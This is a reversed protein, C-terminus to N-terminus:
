RLHERANKLKRKEERTLSDMGHKSIKDLIPDIERRMYEDANRERETERRQQAERWSRRFGRWYYRLRDGYRIYLFGIGLGGLHANHAIGGGRGAYSSVSAFLELIGFLVVFQWARMPIIFFALIIRNPFMMAYAVLIGFIAGSAGVTPIRGHVDFLYTIVGAGIGTVMYFRLFSNSGLAGEVESGFLWLAYMNFLIHWFGGHLFMYTFFQWYWHGHTVAFPLLGLYIILRPAAMTVLFFIINIIILKKVVPPASCGAGYGSSRMYYRSM